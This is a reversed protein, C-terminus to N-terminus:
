CFQIAIPIGALYYTFTNLCLSNKLLRNPEGFHLACNSRRLFIIGLWCLKQLRPKAMTVRKSQTLYTEKPAPVHQQDSYPYLRSSRAANGPKSFSRKTWFTTSPLFRFPHDFTRFLPKAMALSTSSPVYAPTWPFKFSTWKNTMSIRCFPWATQTFQGSSGVTSSRWDTVRVSCVVTQVFVAPLWACNIQWAQLKSMGTCTPNFEAVLSLLASQPTSSKTISRLPLPISVSVSCNRNPLTLPSDLMVSGTPVYNPLWNSKRTVTTSQTAPSSM